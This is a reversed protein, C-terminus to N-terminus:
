LGSCGGAKKIGHFVTSCHSLDSIILEVDETEMKQEKTNKKNPHKQLFLFFSTKYKRVTQIIEYFDGMDCTEDFEIVANRKTNLFSLDEASLRSFSRFIEAKDGRKVVLLFHPDIPVDDVDLKKIASSHGRYELRIDRQGCDYLIKITINVCIDREEKTVADLLIFSLLQLFVHAKDSEKVTFNTDSFTSDCMLSAIKTGADNKSVKKSNIFLVDNGFRDQGSADVGIDIRDSQCAVLAGIFLM